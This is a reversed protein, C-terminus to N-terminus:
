IYESTNHYIDGYIQVTVNLIWFPLAFVFALLFIVLFIPFGLLLFGCTDLFGKVFIYKKLYSGERGKTLLDKAIEEHRRVM